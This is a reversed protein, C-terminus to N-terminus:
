RAGEEGAGAPATASAAPAVLDYAWDAPDGTRLLDDIFPRSDSNPHERLARRLLAEAEQRKGRKLKLRALLLMADDRLHFSADTGDIIAQFHKSAEAIKWETTHRRRSRYRFDLDDIIGEDDVVDSTYRYGLHYRCLTAYASRPYREIAQEYNRGGGSFLDSFSGTAYNPGALLKLAALNEEATPMRVRVRIPASRIEGRWCRRHVGRGISRDWEIYTGDCAFTAAFVSERTENPHIWSSMDAIRVCSEGPRLRISGEFGFSDGGGSFMEGPSVKGGVQQTATVREWPTSMPVETEGVNRITVLFFIPEGVLFDQGDCSLTLTLQPRPAATAGPTEGAGAAAMPLWALLAAMKWWWWRSRKM